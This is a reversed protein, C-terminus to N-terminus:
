HKKKQKGPKAQGQDVAPAPSLKATRINAFAIRVETNDDTMRLLITDGEVKEITGRFRKRGDMPILTEIKAQEGRFRSFDDLRTLPRDTGPSSVELNYATPIPDEVELLAGVARSIEVCDDFSMGRGDSREAVISLTKRKSADSLKVQVIVYGMAQLSPEVIQTIKQALEM